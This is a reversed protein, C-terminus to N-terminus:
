QLCLRDRLEERAAGVTLPLTEMNLGDEKKLIDFLEGIRPLRLKANSLRASDSFVEQPTGECIIRGKHLVIVRDIFLPVLDVAHTSMVM